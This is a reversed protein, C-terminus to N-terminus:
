TSTHPNLVIDEQASEPVRDEVNVQSNSDDNLRQGTKENIWQVDGVPNDGCNLVNVFLELAYELDEPQMTSIPADARRLEQSWQARYKTLKHDMVQDKWARQNMENHQEISLDSWKPFKVKSALSRRPPEQSQEDSDLFVPTPRQVSLPLLVTFEWDLVALPKGTDDIMINSKSLDNHM